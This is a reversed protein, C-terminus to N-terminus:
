KDVKVLETNQTMMRINMSVLQTNLMENTVECQVEVGDNELPLIVSSKHVNSFTTSASSFAYSGPLPTAPIGAGNKVRDGSGGGRDSSAGGEHRTAGQIGQGSTPRHHPSKSDSGTKFTGGNSTTQKIPQVM